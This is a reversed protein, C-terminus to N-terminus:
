PEQIPELFTVLLARMISPNEGGLPPLWVTMHQPLQLLQTQSGLQIASLAARLASCGALISGAALLQTKVFEPSGIRREVVFIAHRKPRKHAPQSM